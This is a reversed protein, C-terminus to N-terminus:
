CNKMMHRNTAGATNPDEPYDLYCNTEGVLPWDIHLARPPYDFTEPHILPKFLLGTKYLREIGIKKEWDAWYKLDKERWQLYKLRSRRYAKELKLMKRSGVSRDGRGRLTLEIIKDM